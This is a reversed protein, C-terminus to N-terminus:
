ARQVEYKRHAEFIFINYVLIFLEGHLLQAPEQTYKVPLLIEDFIIVIIIGIM